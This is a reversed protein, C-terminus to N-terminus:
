RDDWDGRWRNWNVCRVLFHCLSCRCFFFVASLSVCNGYLICYGNKKERAKWLFHLITHVYEIRNNEYTGMWELINEARQKKKMQETEKVLFFVNCESRECKFSFGFSIENNMKRAMKMERKAAKPQEMTCSGCLWKENWMQRQAAYAFFFRLATLPWLSTCSMYSLSIAVPHLVPFSLMLWRCKLMFIYIPYPCNSSVDVNSSSLYFRFDYPNAYIRRHGLKM